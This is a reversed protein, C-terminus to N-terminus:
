KSKSKTSKSGDDDSVESEDKEMLEDADEDGAAEAIKTLKQALADARDGIKDAVESMSELESGEDLEDQLESVLKEIQKVQKEVV